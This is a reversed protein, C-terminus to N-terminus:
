KSMEAYFADVRVPQQWVATNINWGLDDTKIAALFQDKPVGSKAAARAREVLTHWKARYADFDARTLPDAGHGPIVYDVNLKAIEDLSTLWGM